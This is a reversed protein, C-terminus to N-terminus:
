NSPIKKSASLKRRVASISEAGRRGRLRALRFDCRHCRFAAGRNCIGLGKGERFLEPKVTPVIESGIIAQIQGLRDREGEQRGARQAATEESHNREHRNIFQRAHRTM